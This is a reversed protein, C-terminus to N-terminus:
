HQLSPSSTVGNRAELHISEILQKVKSLIEGIHKEHHFVLSYEIAALSESQYWDELKVDKRKEIVMRKVDMLLALGFEHAAVSPDQSVPNEGPFFNLETVLILTRDDDTRILSLTVDTDDTENEDLDTIIFHIHLPIETVEKDKLMNQQIMCAQDKLPVQVGDILLQSQGGQWEISM